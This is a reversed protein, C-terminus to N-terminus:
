RSTSVTASPWRSSTQVSPYSNETQMSTVRAASPASGPWTRCRKTRGFGNVKEGFHGNADVNTGAMLLCYWASKRTETHSATATMGAELPVPLLEIAKGSWSRRNREGMAGV